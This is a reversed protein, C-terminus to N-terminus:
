IRAMGFAEMVLGNFLKLIQELANSEADKLQLTMQGHIAPKVKKSTRLSMSAVEEKLGELLEAVEADSEAVGGREIEEWTAEVDWFMSQVNRFLVKRRPRDLRVSRDVGKDLRGEILGSDNTFILLGGKLALYFTESEDAGSILYYDGMSRFVNFSEGLRILKLINERKGFSTMLLVEPYQKKIVREVESANFDLDYEYTVVPIEVDRIGTVALFLDGKFLDYLEQEDVVIGVVEMLRVFSEGYQPMERMADFMLDKMGEALAEVDLRISYYGLLSRSDVYRLMKRNFRAKYADQMVELMRGDGLMRTNMELAGQNFNLAISYFLGDYLRSVLGGASALSSMSGGLSGSLPNDMQMLAGYDLWLRADAPESLTSQFHAHKDLSNSFSRNLVEDLWALMAEPFEEVLPEEAVGELEEIPEDEWNEYDFDFDFGFDPQAERGSALMAVSANWALYYSEVRAIKFGQQQQVASQRGIFEELLVADSLPFLLGFFAGAEDNRGFFHLTSRSDIGYTEPTTLLTYYEVQQLSDMGRVLERFILDVSEEQMLQRLDVKRDMQDAHWSFLFTVDAPIHTILGQAGLSAAFLFCWIVLLNKM